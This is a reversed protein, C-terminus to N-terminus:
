NNGTLHCAAMHGAGIDRLAPREKRCRETCFPCRDHFPCGSPVDYPSPMEGRIPVAAARRDPDPLPIAALLAKTYPHAPHEYLEKKDAIEVISGLYMVAVRDSIHRVVSLDHSIFLYTLGMEDQLKRMLNLVSARVSVDLASVPEDCVVFEPRLILARAIDIRQRQGGSFEHPFRTMQQEDMGVVALIERVKEDREASGGIGFVDLPARVAERVTMRPNLSAYPDQFIIQLKRRMKRMEERSLKRLDQGRYFLEGATPEILRLLIRGFTSKGCGSEGVLGVTEGKKVSLDVHNVAHVEITKRTIINRSVVFTKQVDKAEMLIEDNM